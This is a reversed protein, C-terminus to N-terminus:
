NKGSIANESRDDSVEKGKKVSPKAAEGINQVEYQLRDFEEETLEKGSKDVYRTEGSNAKDEM